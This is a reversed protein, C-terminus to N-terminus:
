MTAETSPTTTIQGLSSSCDILCIIDSTLAFPIFSFMQDTKRHRFGGPAAKRYGYETRRDRQLPRLVKKKAKDSLSPLATNHDTGGHKASTNRGRTSETGDYPLICDRFFSRFNRKAYQPGCSFPAGGTKDLSLALRLCYAQKIAWTGGTKDLSLAFQLCYARKIAWTGGTKDLSLAFQLCYARKIAWTGGTKDLFLFKAVRFAGPM